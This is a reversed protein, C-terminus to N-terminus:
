GPGRPVALFDGIAGPYSLAGGLMEDTAAAASGRINVIRPGPNPADPADGVGARGTDCTIAAIALDTSTGTAHTCVDCAHTRMSMEARTRALRTHMAVHARM